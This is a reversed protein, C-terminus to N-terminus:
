GNNDGEAKAIAERAQKSLRCRIVKGLETKHSWGNVLPIHHWECNAKLAELLEANQQELEEIKLHPYPGTYTIM